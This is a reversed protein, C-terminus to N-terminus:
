PCGRRRPAARLSGRRAPADHVWRRHARDRVLRQLRSDGVPLVLRGRPALQALLSPPPRRAAAGVAIADFPAREPVGVSGDGVLVEVNTTAPPPLRRVPANPSRRCASSRSCPDRWSPSSPRRTAPARASTSCRNTAAVARAGRLHPRRCLAALDDAPVRDAARRRRLRARAAAGPRLARAARPGNGGPRACGRHRAPAAPPRGLRAPERPARARLASTSRARAAQDGHDIGAARRSRGHADAGRLRGGRAIRPQRRRPPPPRGPRRVRLGPTASVLVEGANPNRLAREARIRGDPVADLLALDEDGDRRAVLM